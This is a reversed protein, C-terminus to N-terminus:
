IITAVWAAEGPEVDCRQAADLWTKASLLENDRRGSDYILDHYAIASAILRHAEPTDFNAAPAHRLHCQWLNVVHNVGHYARLPDSMRAGMDAKAGEDVPLHDLLTEPLLELSRYKPQLRTSLRPAQGSLPLEPTAKRSPTETM